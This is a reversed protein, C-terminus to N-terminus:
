KLLYQINKKLSNLNLKNQNGYGSIVDTTAISAIFMPLLLDDKSFKSVIGFVAMFCDGAGIKDVVKTAFAPCYFIKDLKNLFISLTTWKAAKDSTTGEITSGFSYM